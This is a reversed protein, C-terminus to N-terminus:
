IELSNNFVKMKHVYQDSAVLQYSIKFQFHNKKSIMEM